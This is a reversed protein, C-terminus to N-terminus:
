IELDLKKSQKIKQDIYSPIEHIPVDLSDVLKSMEDIKSVFEKEDMQNRFCHTEVDELLSEVMEESFGLKDLLNKL